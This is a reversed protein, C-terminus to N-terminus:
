EWVKVLRKFDLEENRIMDEITKKSIEASYGLFMLTQIMHNKIKLEKKTM